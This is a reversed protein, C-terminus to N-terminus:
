NQGQKMPANLESDRGLSRKEVKVNAEEEEILVQATKQLSCKQLGRMPFKQSQSPSPKGANNAHTTQYNLLLVLQHQVPAGGGSQVPTCLTPRRGHTTTFSHTLATDWVWYAGGELQSLHRKGGVSRVEAVLSLPWWTVSQSTSIKCSIGLQNLKESLNADLLASRALKEVPLNDSQLGISHFEPLDPVRNPLNGVICGGNAATPNAVSLFWSKDEPLVRNGFWHLYLRVAKNTVVVCIWFFSWQFYTGVQEELNLPQRKIQM